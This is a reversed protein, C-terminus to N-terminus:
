KRRQLIALSGLALMALTTPEPIIQIKDHAGTGRLDFSFTGGPVNLWNGMLIGEGYPNIPVYTVKDAYLKVWSTAAPDIYLEGPIGGGFFTATANNYLNLYSITGEYTTLESNDYMSFQYVGGGNMTVSVDNYINLINIGPYDPFPLDYHGETWSFDVAKVQIPFLALSLILVTIIIRFKIM